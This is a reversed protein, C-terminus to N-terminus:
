LAADMQFHWALAILSLCLSRAAAEGDLVVGRETWREGPIFATSEIAMSEIAM